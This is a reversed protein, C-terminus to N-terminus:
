KRQVWSYTVNGNVEFVPIDEGDTKKNFFAEPIGFYMWALVSQNREYCWIKTQQRRYLYGNAEIKDLVPMTSTPLLYVEGSIYGQRMGRPHMYVVPFDGSVCRVMGYAPLLTRGRCMLDKKSLFGRSGNSKLTGYVFVYHNEYDNLEPIDNSLSNEKIQRSHYEKFTEKTPMQGDEQTLQHSLSALVYM